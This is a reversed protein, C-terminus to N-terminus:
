MMVHVVDAAATLATTALALAAATAAAAAIAAAAAAATAAAAPCRSHVNEQILVGQRPEVVMKEMRRDTMEKEDGVSLRRRHSPQPRSSLELIAIM